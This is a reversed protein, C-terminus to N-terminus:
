EDEGEEVKMAAHRYTDLASSLLTNLLSMNFLRADHAQKEQENMERRGEDLMTHESACEAKCLKDHEYQLIKLGCGAQVELEYFKTM